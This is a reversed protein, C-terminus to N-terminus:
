PLQTYLTYMEQYFVITTYLNTVVQITQCTIGQEEMAIHEVGRATVSAVGPPSSQQNGVVPGTIVRYLWEFM